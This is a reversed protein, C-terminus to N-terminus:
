LKKLKSDIEIDLSLIVYNPLNYMFENIIDFILFKGTHKKLSHRIKKYLLIIM